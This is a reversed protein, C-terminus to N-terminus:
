NSDEPEKWIYFYWYFPLGIIVAIAAIWLIMDAVSPKRRLIHGLYFIDLLSILFLTLFLFRMVTPFIGDSISFPRKFTISLLIIGLSIFMYFPCWFSLVGLFKKTSKNM